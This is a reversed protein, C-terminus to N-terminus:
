RQPSVGEGALLEDPVRAGITFARTLGCLPSTNAKWGCITGSFLTATGAGQVALRSTAECPEVPHHARGELRPRSALLRAADLQRADPLGCGNQYRSGALLSLAHAVRRILDSDNGPVMLVLTQRSGGIGLEVFLLWVTDSGLDFVV